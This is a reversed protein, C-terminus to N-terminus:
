NKELRKAGSIERRKKMGRNRSNKGGRRMGVTEVALRKWHNDRKRTSLGGRKKMRSEKSGHLIDTPESTAEVRKGRDVGGRGGGGWGKKREGGGSVKGKGEGVGLSQGGERLGM